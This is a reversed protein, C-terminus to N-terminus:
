EASEQPFTGPTRVGRTAEYAYKINSTIMAISSVNLVPKGQM